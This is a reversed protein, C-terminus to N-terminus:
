TSWTEKILGPIGTPNIGRSKLYADFLQDPVGAKYLEAFQTSLWNCFDPPTEKHVGASTAVPKVPTPLIVKGMKLKAYQVVLAPHFQAVINVRRAAFAAVAEDNNAFREIKAYKMMATITRDVSTGLTVGIHSTPKDIDKWSKANSDAQVLAGLAYYFMPNSPFNVAEEREPTPDLVFMVDIQNAQLAAVCNGWTTEVPKLSVGLREALKKGYAVGIGSWEDTLPNQYFWPEASTVGIRLMKSSKIREMTSTTHGFAPLASAAMSLGALSLINRRTTNM